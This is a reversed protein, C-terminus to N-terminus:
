RTRRKPPPFWDLRSASGFVAEGRWWRDTADAVDIVARLAPMFEVGPCDRGASWLGHALGLVAGEFIDMPATQHESSPPPGASPLEVKAYAKMCYRVDLNYLSRCKLPRIGYIGCAGNDLFACPSGPQWAALTWAAATGRLREAIALVEIAAAGVPQHCCWGCGKRCAAPATGLAFAPTGRVQAWLAEAGATVEAVAALAADPGKAFAMVARASQFASDKLPSGKRAVRAVALMDLVHDTPTPSSM